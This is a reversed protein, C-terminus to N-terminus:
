AGEESMVPSPGAALVARGIEVASDEFRAEDVRRSGSRAPDASAWGVVQTPSLWPHRRVPGGAFRLAVEGLVTPRRTTVARHRSRDDNAEVDISAGVSGGDQLRASQIADFLSLGLGGFLRVARTVPSVSRLKMVGEDPFTATRHHGSSGRAEHWIAPAMLASGLFDTMQVTKKIDPQRRRAWDTLSAVDHLWARPSPADRLCHDFDDLDRLTLNLGQGAVPHLAHWANGALLVGRAFGRRAVCRRLPFTAIPGTSRLDGLRVGFAATLAQSFEEPSLSLATAARPELSWVVNMRYEGAPLLALPGSDTFREYAQGSHARSTAVDTVLASVGFDQVDAEIGVRQRWRSAAGDAAIVLKTEIFQRPEEATKGSDAAVELRLRGDDLWTCRAADFPPYCQLRGTGAEDQVWREIARDLASELAVLSVVLGLSEQDFSGVVKPDLRSPSSSDVQLANLLSGGLMSESRRDAWEGGVNTPRPHALCVRGMAGQRSVEISRIGCSRPSAGTETAVDLGLREFFEISRASLAVRRSDSSHSSAVPTTSADVGAARDRDADDVRSAEGDSVGDRSPAAVFSPDSWAVQLGAALLRWVYLRAVVGGGVVVVDYTPRSMTESDAHFPRSARDLATAPTLGPAPGCAASGEGSERMSVCALREINAQLKETM